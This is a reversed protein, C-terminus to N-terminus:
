DRAVLGTATDVHYHRDEVEITADRDATFEVRARATFNRAATGQVRESVVTYTIAGSLLRGSTGDMALELADYSADYALHTRAAIGGLTDTTAYDLTSTGDLTVAGAADLDTLSWTAERTTTSQITPLDLAGIARVTVQARHSTSGCVPMALEDADTCTVGYAIALGVVDHHWAGDGTFAGAGPTRGRALLVADAMAGLEVSTAISSGITLAVDDAEADTIESDACAGTASFALIAIALIIRM